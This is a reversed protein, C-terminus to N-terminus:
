QTKTLISNHAQDQKIQLRLHRVIEEGLYSSPKSMKLNYHNYNM